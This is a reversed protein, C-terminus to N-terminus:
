RLKELLTKALIIKVNQSFLHNSQKFSYSFTAWKVMKISCIVLTFLCDYISLYSFFCITWSSHSILSAQIFGFVALSSVTATMWATVCM